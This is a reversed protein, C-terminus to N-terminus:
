LDEHNFSDSKQRTYKKGNIRLYNKAKNFQVNTCRAAGNRVRICIRNESLYERYEYKYTSSVLKESMLYYAQVHLVDKEFTYMWIVGVKVGNGMFVNDREWTGLAWKPFDRIMYVHPSLDTGETPSGESAGLPTQVLLLLGILPILVKNMM